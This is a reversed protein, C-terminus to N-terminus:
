ISPSSRSPSSITSGICSSLSCSALSGGPNPWACRFLKLVDAGGGTCDKSGSPASGVAYSLPSATGALGCAASAGPKLETRSRFSLRSSPNSHPPPSRTQNTNLSPTHRKPANCSIYACRIHLLKMRVERRCCLRHYLVKKVPSLPAGSRVYIVNHQQIVVQKLLGWFVVLASSFCILMLPVVISRDDDLLSSPRLPM